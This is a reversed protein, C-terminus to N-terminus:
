RDQGPLAFRKGQPRCPFPAHFGPKWAGKGHPPGDPARFGSGASGLESQPPLSKLPNCCEKMGRPIHFRERQLDQTVGCIIRSRM